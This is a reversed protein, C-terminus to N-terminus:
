GFVLGETNDATRKADAAAARQIEVLTEIPRRGMGMRAVATGAFTGTVSVAKGAGAALKAQLGALLGEPDFKGPEPVGEGEIGALEAIRRAKMRAETLLVNLDERAQALAVQAAKTREKGEQFIHAMRLEHEAQLLKVTEKEIADVAAIKDRAWQDTANERERLEAEAARKAQGVDYTKDFAGRIEAATKKAAAIWWGYSHDIYQQYRTWGRKQGAVFISWEKSWYGTVREFGLELVLTFEAWETSLGQIGKLWEIKVAAWMIRAALAIDGAKLATKIGDFAATAREKLNTFRQALWDLARGGAGSAFVLYAGLVGVAAILLGIPSLIASVVTFVVGFLASVTGLIAALGGMAFGVVTLFGSLLILSAGAAGLVAVLKAVTVITGKNAKAWAGLYKVIEMVKQVLPTVVPILSMGIEEAANRLEGRLAKMRNQFEGATKVADGVAGQKGMTEMIIAYRAIVKHQMTLEKGTKALGMALAQEQVASELLNVGYQRLPRSMGALGSQFKELAEPDQINYFSAFDISLETMRQAMTRAAKGTFGLGVFFAQMSSLSDRIESRSRGLATVLTEAFQSAAKAQVGFVAEFKNLTEIADGAVKISLALPAAMASAVAFMKLGISRVAVGFRKLRARARKLGRALPSDDAFVEVYAAGAKITRATIAM